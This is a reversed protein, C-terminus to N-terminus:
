NEFMNKRLKIIDNRNKSLIDLQEDREDLLKAKQIELDTITDTLYKEKIKVRKEIFEMDRLIDREVEDFVEKLKSIKKALYKLRLQNIRM